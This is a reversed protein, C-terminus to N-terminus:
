HSTVSSPEVEISDWRGCVCEAKWLDGLDTSQLHSIVISAMPEPVVIAITGERYKRVIKQLAKRVRKQAGELTEGNPPCVTEPHEQWQRYLRPQNEKLEEIRKGNWLGLDINLLQDVVKLKLDCADALREATQRAAAGPSSYIAEIQKTNLEGATREAQQCGQASLPINLSGKIRGQEDFETSGPRVIIVRLM